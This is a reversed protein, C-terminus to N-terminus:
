RLASPLTPLMVTGGRPAQRRHHAPSASPGAFLSARQVGRERLGRVRPLCSAQACLQTVRVPRRKEDRSPTPHSHPNRGARLGRNEIPSLDSM